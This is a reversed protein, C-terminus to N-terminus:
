IMYTPESGPIGLYRMAKPIVKSVLGDVTKVEVDLLTTSATGAPFKGFIRKGGASVSTVTAKQGGIFVQVDAPFNAGGIVFSNGGAAPTWMPHIDYALLAGNVNAPDVPYAVNLKNYKYAVGLIAGGPATTVDLGAFLNTGPFTRPASQPTEFTEDFLLWTCGAKYKQLIIADKMKGGFAMSRLQTIGPTSPLVTLIPGKYNGESPKNGPIYNGEQPNAGMRAKNPNPSGYYKGPIIKNVEDNTFTVEGAPVGNQTQLGYGVNPGNDTVIFYGSTTFIGGYSNRIGTAHITIDTGVAFANISNRANMDKVGNVTYSLTRKAPTKGWDKSLPVKIIATDLPGSDMDGLKCNAVGANTHSGVHILLDGNQDFILNNTGHDYASASLNEVIVTETWTGKSVKTLMVIKSPYNVPNGTRCGGGDRFLWNLSLYLRVTDGDFPNTAMGLIENAENAGPHNNKITNITEMDSLLYNEDVAWSFIAGGFTAAYIRNDNGYLVKTAGQPAAIAQGTFLIGDANGGIVPGTPAKTTAQAITSAVTVGSALILIQFGASATTGRSNKATVVYQKNSLVKSAGSIAGTAKDFLMGPPLAPVIIYTTSVSKKPSQAEIEVNVNGVITNYFPKAPVSDLLLSQTKVPLGDKGKAGSRPSISFTYATGKELGHVVANSGVVAIDQVPPNASVVLPVAGGITSLSIVISDGAAGYNTVAAKISTTSYKTPTVVKVNNSDPVNNSSSSGGTSYLVGVLAIGGVILAFSLGMLAYTVKKSNRVPASASETSPTQPIEASM